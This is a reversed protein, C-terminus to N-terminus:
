SNGGRPRWLFGASFQCSFSTFNFIVYKPEITLVLFDLVGKLRESGLQFTCEGFRWLLVTYTLYHSNPLVIMKWRLLSHFALNKESHSTINSTLSCSFTSIPKHYLIYGKRQLVRMGVPHPPTIDTSIRKCGLKWVWLCIWDFKPVKFRSYFRSWSRFPTLHLGLFTTMNLRAKRTEWVQKWM